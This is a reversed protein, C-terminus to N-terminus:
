ACFLCLFERRSWISHLRPGPLWRTSRCLPVGLGAHHVVPHLSTLCSVCAHSTCVLCLCSVYVGYVPMLRVCWVCAHSTCVLCLCLVYVGSVPMLLVCWVCAHSTCVLCLLCSICSHSLSTHTVLFLLLLVCWVYREIVGM